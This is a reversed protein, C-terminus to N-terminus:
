SRLGSHQLRQLSCPLSEGKIAPSFVVLTEFRDGDHRLHVAAEQPNSVVVDLARDAHAHTLEALV